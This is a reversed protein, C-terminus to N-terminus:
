ELSGVLFGENFNNLVSGPAIMCIPRIYESFEVNERLLLVTIDADYSSTDTNWDPHNYIKKVLESKRGPELFNDPKQFGLVVTLHIEKIPFDEDKDYVCHAV